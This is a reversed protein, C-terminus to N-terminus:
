TEPIAKGQCVSSDGIALHEGGQLDPHPFDSGSREETVWAQAPDIDEKPDDM